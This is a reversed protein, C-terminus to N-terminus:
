IILKNYNKHPSHIGPGNTDQFKKRITKLINKKFGKVRKYSIKHKAIAEPIPLKPSVFSQRITTQRNNGITDACLRLSADYNYRFHSILM